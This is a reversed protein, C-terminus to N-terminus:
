VALGAGSDLLSQARLVVPRDIMQGDLAVAAGGSAQNAALVRRAWALEDASPGLGQHVSALQRPHICLKAGFGLRRARRTDAQLAAADDLATSVGDVPAVLGALRSALVLPQMLPLLADFGADQMGLDLQLDVAGFVLRAVGPAQAIAVVQHLGLASEILPLVPLCPQGAPWSARLAAIQAPSEAKPLMVAALGPMALLRLDDAFWPSHAGNIRLVVPPRPSAAAGAPAAAQLWGAVAQRAAAKDAEAVADELDLIVADAGAACAKDFREPRHGPVFLYSRPPRAPSV